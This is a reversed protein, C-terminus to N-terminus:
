GDTVNASVPTPVAAIAKDVDSAGTGADWITAGLLWVIFTSVVAGAGSGATASVVKTEIAM